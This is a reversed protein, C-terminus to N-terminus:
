GSPALAGLASAFCLVSGEHVVGALEIGTPTDGDCWPTRRASGPAPMPLLPPTQPIVAQYRPTSGVPPVTNAVLSALPQATADCPELPTLRFLDEITKDVGCFSAVQHSVHTPLKRALGGAAVLYSRLTNIHDGTAQTDDEMVLVLTHAWFPSDSLAQVLQGTALDNNAVMVQPAWLLPNNGDNLVDTHDDPLEVLTLSPMASQCTADPQGTARCHAYAQDWAALSYRRDDQPSAGPYDCFNTPGGCLGITKGFDPQPPGLLSDWGLDEAHGSTLLAVRETDPVDTNTGRFLISNTNGWLAAPLNDQGAPAGAPYHAGYARVTIGARAAEDFLYSHPVDLANLPNDSLDGRLGIDNGVRTALENWPTTEASSLVMHGTESEDGAVELNDDIDFTQALHALNPTVTPGYIDYRQSTRLAPMSSQLYGLMSDLTKNERFVVVVHLDAPPVQGQWARCLLQSTVVHGGPLPAGLCPDTAASPASRDVISGLQDAAVFTATWRDLLSSPSSGAARPLDIVELSGQTHDGGYTNGFPLYFGPGSGEGLYNIVYLRSAAATADPSPGSALSLPMWGTPIMTFPVTIRVRRGAAGQLQITEPIPAGNASLVEVANLGFLSVLLRHGGPTFAVSTPQAGSLGLPALGVEVTRAGVVMGDHDLTLLSVSSSRANAVVLHRGEPSLAIGMPERGVRVAQVEHGAGGGDDLKVVSVTGDGGGRATNAGDAMNSVYLTGSSRRLALGYADQGVPVLHVTPTADAFDSTPGLAGVDVAAVVSCSPAAASGVPSTSVPFPGPCPGAQPDLRNITTQALPSLGAAYLWGGAGMLLSGPFGAVAPGHAARPHLVLGIPTYASIPALRSGFAALDLTPHPPLDSQTPAGLPTTPSALARLDRTGRPGRSAAFPLLQGLGGAAAWVLGHPGPAVGFLAAPDGVNTVRLTRADVAAVSDAWIGSTVVDVTHGHPGIALGTPQAFTTVLRGAPELRWGSPLRYGGTPVEQGAADLVRDMGTAALPLVRGAAPATSGACSALLIPLVVSAVV